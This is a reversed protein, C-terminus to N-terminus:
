DFTFGFGDLSIDGLSDNAHIEIRINVGWKSATKTTNAFTHALGIENATNSADEWTPNADFGNNTVFLKLSSPIAGDTPLTRFIVPVLSRAHASTEVAGALEVRILNGVRSLVATNYAGKTFGDDGIVRWYYSAIPLDTQPTYRVRVAGDVGASPFPLYTTGGSPMYEWGAQNTRSAFSYAINGFTSMTSYDVIFHLKKGEPHAPSDFIFSQRQSIRKGPSPEVISVMLPPRLSTHLLIPSLGYDFNGTGRRGNIFGYVGYEFDQNNLPM